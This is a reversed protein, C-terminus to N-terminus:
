EGDKKSSISSLFNMAVEKQQEMYEIAKEEGIRIRKEELEYELADYSIADYNIPEESGFVTASSLGDDSGLGYDAIWECEQIDVVQRALSFLLKEQKDQNKKLETALKLEELPLSEIVNAFHIKPALDPVKIYKCAKKIPLKNYYESQHFLTYVSSFLYNGLKILLTQQEILWNVTNIFFSKNKKLSLCKVSKESLGTYECIFTVDKDTTPNKVLGLLYDASVSFYEAYKVIYQTSITRDGNYHKTIISTNCEMEKAILDRTKGCNDVLERFRQLTVNTDSM